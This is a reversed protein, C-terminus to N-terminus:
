THISRYRSWLLTSQEVGLCVVWSVRVLISTIGGGSSISASRGRPTSIHTSYLTKQIKSRDGERGEGIYEVGEYEIM